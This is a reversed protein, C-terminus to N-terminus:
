NKKDTSSFKYFLFFIYFFNLSLHFVIIKVITDMDKRFLVDVCFVIIAYNRMGDLVIQLVYKEQFM